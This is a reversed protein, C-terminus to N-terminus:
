KASLAVETLKRASVDRIVTLIKDGTLVIRAEFWRRTEKIELEYEM